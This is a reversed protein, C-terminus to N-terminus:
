PISFSFSKSKDSQFQKSLAQVRWWYTGSPFRKRVLFNESIKGKEVLNKFDRDKSIEYYFEDTFLTQSWTLLVIDKGKGAPKSVVLSKDPPSKLIPPLFKFEFRNVSSKVKQKEPLNAVIQYYIAHGPFKKEDLTFLPSNIEKKLDTPKMSSSSSLTVLYSTARPVKSWSITLNLPQKIIKQLLNSNIKQGAVRVETEPFVPLPEKKPKPLDSAKALPTMRPSPSPKVNTALPSATVTSPATSPLHSPPASPGTAVTPAVSPTATTAIIPKAVVVPEKVLLTRTTSSSDLLPSSFHSEVKWYVKKQNKLSVFARNQQEFTQNAIIKQFKDDSALKLTYSTAEEIQEWVFLTEENPDALEVTAGESPELLDVDQKEVIKFGRAESVASTSTRIRWFYSGAPLAHTAHDGEYPLSQWIKSFNPSTSIELAASSGESHNHGNNWLFQVPTVKTKDNTAVIVEGSAPTKLNIDPQIIQRTGDSSLQLSQQPKLSESKNGDTLAVDGNDITISTASDKVSLTGQSAKDITLTKGLVQLLPASKQTNGASKFKIQGGKLNLATQGKKQTVTVLSSEGIEVQANHGFDLIIKSDKDTVISENISILRKPRAIYWRFRDLPRRRANGTVEIITAIGKGDRGILDEQFDRWLIYSLIGIAVIPLTLIFKKWPNPEPSDAVITKRDPEALSKKQTSLSTSKKEDTM